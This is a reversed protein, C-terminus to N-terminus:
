KKKLDMNIARNVNTKNTLEKRREASISNMAFKTRESILKKNEETHKFGTVSQRIKEKHEETFKKGKMGIIGNLINYRSKEAQSKILDPNSWAKLNSQRIKDIQEETFKMGTRGLTKMKAFKMVQEIHSARYEPNNWNKKMSNSLKNSAALREEKTLNEWTNGGEGCDKLNYSMTNKSIKYLKLFKDEFEFAQKRTEFLKLPIHEFNEIGYKKIAAVILKGSGFYNTNGVTSSGYYFKGNILNKTIYFYGKM